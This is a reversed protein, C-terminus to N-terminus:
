REDAVIVLLDIDSEDTDDQRAKSGFLIMRQFQLSPENALRQVLMEIADRDRPALLDTTQTM